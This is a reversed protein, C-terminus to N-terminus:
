NQSRFRASVSDNHESKLFTVRSFRCDDRITKM